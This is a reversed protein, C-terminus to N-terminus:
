YSGMRRNRITRYRDRYLFVRFERGMPFGNPAQRVSKFNVLKRIIVRGRSGSKLKLLWETLKVLKEYNNAVCSEWGQLKRSQIAGKVFVPFQLYKSIELCEDVTEIAWSEPTLEKILPYFRDFEMARQHQFPDNLLKIGKALAARYIAEYRELEPIYGIWIGATEPEFQPVHWLANEATECFDFDRPMYYVKCGLLTAAESMQRNATASASAEVQEPSESLVIM